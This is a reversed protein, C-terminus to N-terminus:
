PREGSTGGRGRHWLKLVLDRFTPFLGKPLLLVLFMLITGLIILNNLFSTEGLKLSLYELAIVDPDDHVFVRAPQLARGSLAGAGPM